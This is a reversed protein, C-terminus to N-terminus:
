IRENKLCDYDRMGGSVVSKCRLYEAYYATIIYAVAEVSSPTDRDAYRIGKVIRKLAKANLETTAIRERVYAEIPHEEITEGSLLKQIAANQLLQNLGKYKYKKLLDVAERAQEATEGGVCEM